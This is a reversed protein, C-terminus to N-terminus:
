EYECGVYFTGHKQLLKIIETKTPRQFDHRPQGDISIRLYERNLTDRVETLEFKVRNGGARKYATFTVRGNGRPLDFYKRVASMCFYWIRSQSGNKTDSLGYNHDYLTIQKIM